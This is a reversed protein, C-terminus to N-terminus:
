GGWRDDRRSNSDDFEAFYDDYVGDGGGTPARDIIEGRQEAEIRRPSKRGVNNLAMGAVLSGICGVYALATAIMPGGTMRYHAPPPQSFGFLQGGVQLAGSLLVLYFIPNAIAGSAALGVGGVLGIAPLAPHLADAVRGGDLGGIPLLNFLNIMFGWDGLAMLLQSGTAHGAFATAGAAVGGVVPGALAVVASQAATAPLKQMQIVAGVFPIFLMPSFPLGYYRMALIHGCEHVFILGVMGCGYAPGFIASYALSSAVMSLVPALKTLKLAVLVYKFKGLAVAALGFLAGVRGGGGKRGSSLERTGYATLVPRAAGIWTVQARAPAGATARALGAIGRMPPARTVLGCNAPSRVLRPRAALSAVLRPRAVLSTSPRAGLRSAMQVAERRRLAAASRTTVQAAAGHLRASLQLARARLM